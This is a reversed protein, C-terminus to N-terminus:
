REGTPDKVFKIVSKDEVPNRFFLFCSDMAVPDNSVLERAGELNAAVMRCYLLLACLFAFSAAFAM